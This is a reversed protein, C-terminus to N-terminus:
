LVRHVNARGIGLAKPAPPKKGSTDNPKLMSALAPLPLM